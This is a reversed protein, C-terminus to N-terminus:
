NVETMFLKVKEVNIVSNEYFYSGVIVGDAFELYEKINQATMGSGLIIPFNAVSGKLDRVLNLLPAKWTWDWTIIIKSCWSEIAQLASQTLTKHSDLMKTHKVQIDAWIEIDDAGISKKYNIINQPNPDIIIWDKIRQVKDVFTDLRIFWAWYIKAFHLATKYDNLLVCFGFPIKIFKHIKDMIIGFIRKQTNTLFEPYPSYIGEFDNEIIIADVWGKQLNDIDFVAHTIIDSIKEQDITDPFVGLHVMWVIIKKPM